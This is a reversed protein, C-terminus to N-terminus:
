ELINKINEDKLYYLCRHLTTDNVYMLLKFLKSDNTSDNIYILFLLPGSILGQPVGNSYKFAIELSCM